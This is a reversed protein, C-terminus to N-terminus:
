VLAAFSEAIVSVVSFEVPFAAIMFVVAAFAKAFVAPSSIAVSSVSGFWFFPFAFVLQFRLFLYATLIAGVLCGFEAFREPGDM